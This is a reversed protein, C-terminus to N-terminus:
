FIENVDKLDEAQLMNVRSLLRGPFCVSAESFRIEEKDSQQMIPVIKGGPCLQVAICVEM